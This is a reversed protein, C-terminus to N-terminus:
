DAARVERIMGMWVMLVFIMALDNKWYLTDILSHLFFYVLLVQLPLNGRANKILWGLLLLFGVLGMLGTQLLFALWTNHPQPVAWELYPEFRPQLALYEAQFTGPGIGLPMKEQVMVAASRWITLRSHWSSREASRLIFDLKWSIAALAVLLLGALLLTIHKKRLPSQFAEGKLCSFFYFGMAAVLALLAGTSKTFIIVGFILSLAFMRVAVPSLNKFRHFFPLRWDQALWLLFAPALYMALYNPSEYFGKLREDWTWFGAIPILSILAVALASFAVASLVAKKQRASFEYVGLIMLMLLPDVLFAKIAGLSVKLDASHLTALLAGLLVLGWSAWLIPSARVAQKLRHWGTIVGVSGIMQWFLIYLTMELFTTPIGLFSFRLLYTPLLAFWVAVGVAFNRHSFGFFILLLILSFYLPLIM